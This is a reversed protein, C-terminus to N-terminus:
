KVVKFCYCPKGPYGKPQWILFSEKPLIVNSVKSNIMDCTKSTFLLTLKISPIWKKSIKCVIDWSAISHYGLHFLCAKIQLFWLVHTVNWSFAEKVKVESWLLLNQLCLMNSISWQPCTMMTLKHQLNPPSIIKENGHHGFFLGLQLNLLSM